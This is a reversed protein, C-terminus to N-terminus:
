WSRVTPAPASEFEVRMHPYGWNASDMIVATAEAVLAEHEPEAMPMWNVVEVDCVVARLYVRPDEICGLVTVETNWGSSMLAMQLNVASSLWFEGAFNASVVDIGHLRAFGRVGPRGMGGPMSVGGGQGVFTARTITIETCAQAPACLAGNALNSLTNYAELRYRFAMIDEPDGFAMGAYIASGGASGQSQIMSMFGRRSANWRDYNLTLDNNCMACTSGPMGFNLKHLAVNLSPRLAQAEASTVPVPGEYGVMIHFLLGMSEFQQGDDGGGGPFPVVTVENGYYSASVSMELAARIMNPDQPFMDNEMENMYVVVGFIAHTGNFAAGSLGAHAPTFHNSMTAANLADAVAHFYKPSGGM